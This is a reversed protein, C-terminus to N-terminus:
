RQGRAIAALQCISEALEVLSVVESDISPLPYYDRDTVVMLVPITLRGPQIQQHETTTMETVGNTTSKPINLLATNLTLLL